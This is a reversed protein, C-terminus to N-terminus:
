TTNLRARRLSCSFTHIPRALSVAWWSPVGMEARIPQVSRSREPPTLVVITASSISCSTPRRLDIASRKEFIPELGSSVGAGM